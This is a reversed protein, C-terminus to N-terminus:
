RRRRLVLGFIGLGALMAGTPEPIASGDIISGGNAAIFHTSPTSGIFFEYAEDDSEVIPNLPGPDEFVAVASDGPFLTVFSGYTSSYSSNWGTPTLVSVSLSPIWNGRTTVSDAFEDDTSIALFDIVVTAGTGEEDLIDVAYETPLPGFLSTRELLNVKGFVGFITDPTPPPPAGAHLSAHGLAAVALAAFSFRLLFSNM